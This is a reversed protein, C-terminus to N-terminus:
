KMLEVADAYYSAVALYKGDSSFAVGYAGDWDAGSKRAARSLDPVNMLEVADADCSAVALYKGDPSFAVGVAGDWDSGSNRAVRSLDPVNMLEVADADYSAVALYKGDPSFAVGWAKKWDAGSNRAVRTLLYQSVFKRVLIRGLLFAPIAALNLADVIEDAEGKAHTLAHAKEHHADPITTRDGHQLDTIEEDEPLAPKKHLDKDHIEIGIKFPM